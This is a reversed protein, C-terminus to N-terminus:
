RALFGALRTQVGSAYQRAVAMEHPRILRLLVALAAFILLGVAVQVALGLPEATHVVLGMSIAAVAARAVRGVTASDLSDRVLYLGVITMMVETILLSWAAGLAANHWGDRTAPIAVLNLLVNIVVSVAMVKTWVIQRNSAVLSQNVMINLYTSPVALALITLVPASAAYAPGYLMSIAPGAVAATGAALPLSMVLTSELIPTLTRKFSDHGLAFTATLRALTATSIIVPIFLLTAFLKTSVGYWGVEAASALVALMVSDIWLYVTSIIGTAWFPLSSVIVRRIETMKVRWVLDFHRRSWYISTALALAAACSGLVVLGLVRFGVLVLVIGGATTVTRLIVGLYAIYQMRELGQFANTLVESVLALPMTITAVFLLVVQYQNFNSYHLYIAMLGVGPVFMALRAAIAASATRGASAPDRAIDTVVLIGTGLSIIVALIGTASWVTVLQGMGTPGIQRPVVVTWLAALAWTTLQGGALYGINRMVGNRPLRVGLVASETAM